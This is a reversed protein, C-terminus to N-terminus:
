GGAAHQPQLNELEALVASLSDADLDSVPESGKPAPYNFDSLHAQVAALVSEEGEPMAVPLQGNVFREVAAAPASPHLSSLDFAAAGEIAPAASNEPAASKFKSGAFGAKIAEDADYWTEAKIAEVLEDESLTSHRLYAQVMPGRIKDLLDATRRHEAADGFTFSKAEHIMFFAVESMKVDDGAMAILSAASAALGDICTTVKAAHERLMSYIAFGDFVSGGPSHIRLEIEEPDGLADLQERFASANVNWPNIPGYVYIQSPKAKKEDDAM